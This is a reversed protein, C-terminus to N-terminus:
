ETVAGTPVITLSEVIRDFPLEILQGAERVEAETPSSLLFLAVGDSPMLICALPRVKNSTAPNEHARAIGALAENAQQETIGPWFCEVVYTPTAAEEHSAGRRRHTGCPRRHSRRRPPPAWAYNTDGPVDILKTLGSGDARAIWLAEGDRNVREFLLRTSDPSWVPEYSSYGGTPLTLERLGTGDPHVVWVQPGPSDIFRLNFAILRGDPSWTAGNRAGLGFPTIRHLGTGDANM